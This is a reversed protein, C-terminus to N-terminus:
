WVHITRTAAAPLWRLLQISVDAESTTAQAWGM